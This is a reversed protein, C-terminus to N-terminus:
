SVNRLSVRCKDACMKWPIPSAKFKRDNEVFNGMASFTIAQILQVLVAAQLEYMIKLTKVGVLAM